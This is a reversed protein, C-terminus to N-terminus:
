VPAAERAARPIVVKTEALHLSLLRLVVSPSLRDAGWFRDPRCSPLVDSGVQENRCNCGSTSEVATALTPISVIPFAM